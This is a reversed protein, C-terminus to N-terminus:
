FYYRLRLEFKDENLKEGYETFRAGALHSYRLRLEWHTFGRYVAEPSLSYSADDLNYISTLGPTFYLLDFSEKQTLRLYLYNRGAQPRAYGSRSIGAAQQLPGDDGSALFQGHAASVRQYFREMEAVSYGAGNHYYEVITTIDNAALYRLGLLYSTVSKEVTTLSGVENLLRIKQGPIHALEAHIEFNSALNKAIDIGFRTSRSNGTFFLLDIDTDRYLLYLKGAM